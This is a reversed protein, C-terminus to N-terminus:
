KEEIEKLVKNFAKLTQLINHYEDLLHYEMDCKDKKALQVVVNLLEVNVEYLLDESVKINM